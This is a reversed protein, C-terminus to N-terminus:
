HQQMSSSSMIHLMGDSFSVSIFQICMLTYDFMVDALPSCWVFKHKCNEAKLSNCIYDSWNFLIYDKKSQMNHVKLKLPELAM